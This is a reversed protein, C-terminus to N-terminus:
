APRSGGVRDIALESVTSGFAEAPEAGAAMRGVLDAVFGAFTGDRDTPPPALVVARDLGELAPEGASTVIVLAASSWAAAAVAPAVLASAPEVLVIARVDPLYRLALEVDASDLGTASSRLVAAHGIGATSLELLRRDGADDGSVVGVAEVAGGAAAIRAAISAATVAASGPAELTGVVAIV